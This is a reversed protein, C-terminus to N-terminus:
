MVNNVTYGITKVLMGCNGSNNNSSYISPPNSKNIYTLMAAYVDRPLSRSYMM